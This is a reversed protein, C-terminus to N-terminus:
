CPKLIACCYQRRRWHGKPRSHYLIQVKNVLGLPMRLEPGFLHQSKRKRGSSRRRRLARSLSNCWASGTMFGLGAWQGISIGHKLVIVDTTKFGRSRDDRTAAKISNFRMSGRPQGPLTTSIQKLRTRPFLVLILVRTM